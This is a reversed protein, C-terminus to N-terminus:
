DDGYPNVGQWSHKIFMLVNQRDLSKFVTVSGVVACWLGNIKLVKPTVKLSPVTM